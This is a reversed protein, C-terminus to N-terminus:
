KEKLLKYYYNITKWISDDIEGHSIKKQFTHKKGNNDVEIYWKQHKILSFNTNGRRSEYEFESIPYVIIGSKYVFYSKDRDKSVLSSSKKKM